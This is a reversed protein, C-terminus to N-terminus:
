GAMARNRLMDMPRTRVRAMATDRVLMARDRFKVRVM